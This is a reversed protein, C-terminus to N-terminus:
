RFAKKLDKIIRTRSNSLQCFFLNVSEIYKEKNIELKEFMANLDMFSVENIDIVFESLGLEAMIGQSKNGGYAIALCPVRTIQSFIVSHFRTGILFDMKSYISILDKYDYDGDIVNLDSRKSRKIVDSIAIRDDEHASPGQVQVIFFIDYDCHYDCFDALAHIYDIYSKNPNASEPFRYPRVTVGLRPRGSGQIEATDTDLAKCFYALDVSPRTNACGINELCKQSVKERTYVLTCRNLIMRLIIRNITGQIPGFSNPFFIVKKRLRLALIVYYLNFWLYYPDQLHGYTHVFGGGKVVCGDSERLAEFSAVKKQDELTIKAIISYPFLFLILQKAFDLLATFAVRLYAALNLHKQNISVSRKPNEVLNRIVSYGARRTQDSQIAREEPTNGYDVIKIETNPGFTDSLLNASEWVLAQDGRNLDTCAPVIIFKYIKSKM